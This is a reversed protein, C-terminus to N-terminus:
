KPAQDAQAAVTAENAPPTTPKTSILRAIAFVKGAFMSKVYCDERVFTLYLSLAQEIGYM